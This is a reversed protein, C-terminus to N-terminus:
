SSERQLKAFLIRVPKQGHRTGQARAAAARAVAAASLGAQGQWRALRGGGPRARWAGGGDYCLAPDLSYQQIATTQVCTLEVSPADHQEGGAPNWAATFSLIPVAVGFRAAYDFRAEAGCGAPRAAGPSPGPLNLCSSPRQSAAHCAHAHM